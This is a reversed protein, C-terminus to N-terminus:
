ETTVNCDSDSYLKTMEQAMGAMYRVRDSNDATTYKDVRQYTSQLTSCSSSQSQISLMMKELAQFDNASSPSYSTGLLLSVQATLGGITCM